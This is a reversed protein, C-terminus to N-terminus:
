MIREPMTAPPLAMRKEMEGRVKTLGYVCGEFSDAVWVVRDTVEHAKLVARMFISAGGRWVGTEILDGPVGDRLISKVCNEINDFRALPLMSVAASEVYHDTFAMTYRFEDDDIDPETGFITNTLSRKLLDLYLDTPASTM